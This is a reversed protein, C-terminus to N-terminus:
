SASPARGYPAMEVRMYGNDFYGRSEIYEPDDMIAVFDEWTAVMWTDAQITSPSLVM